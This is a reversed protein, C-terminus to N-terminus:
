ECTVAQWRPYTKSTPAQYKLSNDRTHLMCEQTIYQVNDFRFLPCLGLFHEYLSRGVRNALTLVDKGENSM